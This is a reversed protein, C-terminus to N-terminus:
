PKRVIEEVLDGGSVMARTCLRDAKNRFLGHALLCPIALVLGLLTHFLAKSIGMSLAAPGAQGGSEGLSTFALIMGWVTGALGVLPGLNGIINLLDIRRFWRACLEGAALEAADRVAQAPLGRSKAEIAAAVIGAVVSRDESVAARADEWRNGRLLDTLRGITDRPAINAERVEFLCLFCLAVGVLSGILLLVTFIDFSQAFLGWLGLVGASPPAAALSHPWASFAPTFALLSCLTMM